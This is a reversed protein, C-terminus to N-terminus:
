FNWGNGPNQHITVNGTAEVLQNGIQIITMKKHKSIYVKIIKGAEISYMPKNDQVIIISGQNDMKSIIPCSKDKSLTIVGTSVCLSDANVKSTFDTIVMGLLIVIVIILFIIKCIRKVM